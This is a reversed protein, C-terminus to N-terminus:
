TVRLALPEEHQLVIGRMDLTAPESPALRSRVDARASVAAILAFRLPSRVHASM